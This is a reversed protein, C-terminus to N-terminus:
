KLMSGSQLSVKFKLKGVEYLGGPVYLNWAEM